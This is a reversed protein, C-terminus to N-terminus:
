AEDSPMEAPPLLGAAPPFLGEPLTMRIRKGAVDVSQLWAKVFPVLTPEQEPSSGLQVLLLPAADALRTRGDPATAFQVDVIQGVTRDGDDLTCGLLDEVLFTDPDRAPLETEDLFLTHGAMAEAAAISDVGVLKLVIRGANRGNPSWCTQLEHSAPDLVPVEKQANLLRRGPVFVGALDTLPEALLEGRRGQPRLLHAVAIRRPSQPLQPGQLNM